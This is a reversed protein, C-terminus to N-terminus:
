GNTAMNPSFSDMEQLLSWINCIVFFLKYHPERPDRMYESVVSVAYAIRAYAIEPRTHSLYIIKSVFRQNRGWDTSARAQPKHNSEIPSDM